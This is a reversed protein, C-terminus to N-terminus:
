YAFPAAEGWLERVRADRGCAERYLRYASARTRPGFRTLTIAQSRHYDQHEAEAPWFAGAERIPTVVPRGLDAAAAALAAEATRRQADSFVFLATAYQAGRDCFQGGADTPDVSRLFLRLVEAYSIRAPDFEIRAVELHGTRGSSVQRYTPAEETGGMFGVTIDTVGSVRAFDSEVCWFCGGAVVAVEQALARLPALAVLVALIIMRM